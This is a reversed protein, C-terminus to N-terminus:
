SGFNESSAWQLNDILLNGGAKINTFYLSVRACNDAAELEHIYGGDPDRRSRFNELPIVIGRNWGAKLNIKNTEFEDWGNVSSETTLGISISIFKRNANYVDMIIATNGSLDIRRGEHDPIIYNVSTIDELGPKVLVRLAEGGQGDPALGTQVINGWKPGKWGLTSEDVGSFNQWTYCNMALKTKEVEPISSEEKLDGFFTTFVNTLLAKNTKQDRCGTAIISRRSEVSLEEAFLVHNRGVEYTSNFLADSDDITKIQGISSFEAPIGHDQIWLRGGSTLYDRLLDLESNTFNKKNTIVLQCSLIDSNSSQINSINFLKVSEFNPLSATIDNSNSGLLGINLAIGSIDSDTSSIENGKISKPLKLIDADTIITNDLRKPSNIIKVSPEDLIQAKSIAVDYLSTDTLDSQDEAVNFEQIEDTALEAIKHVKQPAIVKEASSIKELDPHLPIYEDQVAKTSPTKELTREIEPENETTPRNIGTLRDIKRDINIDLNDISAIVSPKSDLESEVEFSEEDPIEISQELVNNDEINELPTPLAFDDEEEELMLNDLDLDDFSPSQEPIAAIPEEKKIDTDRSLDFSENMSELDLCLGDSTIGPISEISKSSFEDSEIAEAKLNRRPTAEYIIADSRESDTFIDADVITLEEPLDETPIALEYDDKIEIPATKDISTLLRSPEERSPTSQTLTRLQSTKNVEEDLDRSLKKTTNTQLYETSDSLDPLDPIEVDPLLSSSSTPIIKTTSTNTPVAEEVEISSLISAIENEVSNDDETIEVLEQANAETLKDARPEPTNAAAFIEGLPIEPEILSGVEKQLTIQNNTELEPRSREPAKTVISNFDFDSPSEFNQVYNATKNSSISDMELKQLNNSNPSLLATAAIIEENDPAEANALNEPLLEPEDLSTSTDNSLSQLTKTSETIYSKETSSSAVIMNAIPAKKIKIMSPERTVLVYSAIVAIIPLHLAASLLAFRVMRKSSFKRLILLIITLAFTATLILLLLFNEESERAALAAPSPEVIVTEEVVAVPEPKEIIPAKPPEIVEPAVVEAVKPTAPLSMEHSLAISAVEHSVDPLSLEHSLLLTTYKESKPALLYRLKVVKELEGARIAVEQNQEEKLSFNKGRFLFEVTQKENPKLKIINRYKVEFEPNKSSITLSEPHPSQLMIDISCNYLKDEDIYGLDIQSKSVFLEADLVKVSVPLTTETEPTSLKLSGRYTGSPMESPVKLSATLTNEGDEISPTSISLNEPTIKYVSNDLSTFTATVIKPLGTYKLTLDQTSEAGAIMTGFELDTDVQMDYRVKPAEVQIVKRKLIGASTQRIYPLQKTGWARMLLELDFDREVPISCTYIGDGAKGDNHQGDDHLKIRGRQSIVQVKSNEVVDGNDALTGSLWVKNGAQLPPFSDLYLSTNGTVNLELDRQSARNSLVATWLGAEPKTLRIEAFNNDKTPKVEITNGTPSILKLIVEDIGANLMFSIDKISNDVPISVRNKNYPITKNFIVERRSIVTAIRQYIGLLDNDTSAKFFSANTDDAIRKLLKTDAQDSLGVCYIPINKKNFLLHQDKYVSSENKGDTLLVVATRKSTAFDLLELGADLAAGIDTQGSADISDIAEHLRRSNRVPTLNAVIKAKNNFSIIGINRIRKDTRAIDVFAKAARHRNRYPDNSHMSLSSDIILIVDAEDNDYRVKNALEAKYISRKNKSLEIYVTYEGGSRQIPPKRIDLFLQNNHQWLLLKEARYEERKGTSINLAQPYIYVNLDDSTFSTRGYSEPLTLNLKINKPDSPSGAQQNLLKVEITPTAAHTSLMFNSLIIAVIFLNIFFKKSRM